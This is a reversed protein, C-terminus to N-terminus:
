GVKLNGTKKGLTVPLQLTVNECPNKGTKLGKQRESIMRASERSGRRRIRAPVITKSELLTVQFKM